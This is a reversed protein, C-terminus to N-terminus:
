TGASQSPWPITSDHIRVLARPGNPDQCSVIWAFNEERRHNSGTPKRTQDADDSRIVSLMESSIQICGPPMRVLPVSPDSSATWVLQDMRDQWNYDQHCPCLRLPPSIRPHTTTNRGKRSKPTIIVQTDQVLLACSISASGDSAHNEKTNKHDDDGNDNRNSEHSTRMDITDDKTIPWIPDDNHISSSSSSSSTTTTTMDQNSNDKDHNDNDHNDNDDDDINIKVITVHVVDHPPITLSITQHHFIVSIQQLFQDQEFWTAHTEILEWDAVTVPEVHISSCSQISPLVQVAVIITPSSMTTTM